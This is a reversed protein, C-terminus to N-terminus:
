PADVIATYGNDQWAKAAATRFRTREFQRRQHEARLRTAVDHWYQQREADLEDWAPPDPDPEINDDFTCYAELAEQELSTTYLEEATQTPVPDPPQPLRVTCQDIARTLAAIAISVEHAAVHCVGDPDNALTYCETSQRIHHLNMRATDLAIRLTALTRPTGDSM